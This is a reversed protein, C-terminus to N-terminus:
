FKAYCYDAVLDRLLLLFIGLRTKLEGKIVKYNQWQSKNADFSSLM